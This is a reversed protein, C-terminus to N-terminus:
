AIGWRPYLQTFYHRWHKFLHEPQFIPEFSPDGIAVQAGNASFGDLFIRTAFGILGNTTLADDPLGVAQRNTQRIVYVIAADVASSVWEDPADVDYAVHVNASVRGIIAPRKTEIPGTVIEPPIVIESM